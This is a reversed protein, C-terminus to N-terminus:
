KASNLETETLVNQAAQLDATASATDAQAQAAALRVDNDTREAELLDVLSAGGKEYAFAVSDRVKASKPVIQDRYRQWRQLAENYESDANAIDAMVQAEVKELAIEAQDRTAQAAKINGSNRNWLPLPFSVGVNFTDV